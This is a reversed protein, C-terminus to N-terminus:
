NPIRLVKYGGGGSDAAGVTVQEMQGNDDDYLWLSTEGAALDAPDEARLAEAGGAVISINDAANWGLGSDADTRNPIFVPVTATPVFNIIRPGGSVAADFSGTFFYWRNVGALSIRLTDDASEYFGTDGDGFALTPTAADDNQPFVFDGAPFSGATVRSAAVSIVAQLQGVTARWNAGARVVAVIDTANVVGVPPYGSIKTNPV